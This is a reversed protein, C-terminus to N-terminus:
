QKKYKERIRELAARREEPPLSKIQNFIGIIEKIGKHLGSVIQPKQEELKKLKENGKELMEPEVNDAFWKKCCEKCCFIKFDSVGFLMPYKVVYGMADARGAITGMNKENTYFLHKGCCNCVIKKMDFKNICKKKKSLM